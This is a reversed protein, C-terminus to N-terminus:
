SQGPFYGSLLDSKPLSPKTDCKEEFKNNVLWQVVFTDQHAIPEKQRLMFKVRGTCM